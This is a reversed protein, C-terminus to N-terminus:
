CNLHQRLIRLMGQVPEAACWLLQDGVTVAGLFTPGFMLKDFHVM